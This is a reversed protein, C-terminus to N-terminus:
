AFVFAKSPPTQDEAGMTGVIIHVFPPLVDLMFTFSSLAIASVSSGGKAVISLVVTDSDSPELGILRERM